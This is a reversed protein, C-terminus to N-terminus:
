LNMESQSFYGVNDSRGNELKRAFHCVVSNIHIRGVKDFGINLAIDFAGNKVTHISCDDALSNSHTNKKTVLM